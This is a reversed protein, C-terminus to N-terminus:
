NVRGGGMQGAHGNLDRSASVDDSNRQDIAAWASKTHCIKKGGMISGTEEYSRCLKKEPKPAAAPDAATQGAAPLAITALLLAATRALIM